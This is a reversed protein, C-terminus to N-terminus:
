DFYFFSCFGNSGIESVTQCPWIKTVLKWIFMWLFTIIPHQLKVKSFSLLTEMVSNTVTPSNDIFVSDFITLRKLIKSAIAEKQITAPIRVAPLVLVFSGGASMMSKLNWVAGTLSHFRAQKVTLTKQLDITYHRVQCLNEHNKPTNM